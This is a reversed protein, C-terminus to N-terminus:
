TGAKVMEQLEYYWGKPDMYRRAATKSPFVRALGADTTPSGDNSMWADRRVGGPGFPLYVICRKM